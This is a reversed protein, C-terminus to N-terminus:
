QKPEDEVPVEEQKLHLEDKWKKVNPAKNNIENM